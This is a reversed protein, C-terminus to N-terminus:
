ILNKDQKKNHFAAQLFTLCCIVFHPLTASNTTCMNESGLTKPEFRSMALFHLSPKDFPDFSCTTLEGLHIVKYDENVYSIFLRAVIHEWMCVQIHLPLATGKTGVTCAQTCNQV